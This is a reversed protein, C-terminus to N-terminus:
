VFIESCPKQVAGEGGELPMYVNVRSGLGVERQSHPPPLDGPLVVLRWAVSIAEEPSFLKM